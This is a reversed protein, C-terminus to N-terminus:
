EQERNRANQARNNKIVSVEQPFGNLTNWNGADVSLVHLGNNLLFERIYGVPVLLVITM